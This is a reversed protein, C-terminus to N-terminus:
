SIGPTFLASCRDLPRTFLAIGGCVCCCFSEVCVHKSLFYSLLYGGLFFSFLLFPPLLSQFLSCVGRRMSMDMMQLQLHFRQVDSILSKKKKM